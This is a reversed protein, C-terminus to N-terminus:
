AHRSTLKIRLRNTLKEIFVPVIKHGRAQIINKPGASLLGREIM